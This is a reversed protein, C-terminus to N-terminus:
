MNMVLVLLIVLVVVRFTFTTYFLNQEESKESQTSNESNEFPETLGLMVNANNSPNNTYLVSAQSNYVKITDQSPMVVPMNLNSITSSSNESQSSSSGLTASGGFSLEDDEDSSNSNSSSNIPKFPSNAVPARKKNMKKVYSCSKLNTILLQLDIMLNDSHNKLVDMKNMFCPLDVFITDPKCGGTKMPPVPKPIPKTVSPLPIPNASPNPSPMPSPMIPPIVIGPPVKPGSPM